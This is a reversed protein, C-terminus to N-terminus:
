SNYSLWIGGIALGVGAARYILADAPGVTVQKRLIHSMIGSEARRLMGGLIVMACGVIVSVVAFAVVMFSGRMLTGVMGYGLGISVLVMATYIIDMATLSAYAAPRHEPLRETIRALLAHHHQPDLPRAAVSMLEHLGSLAQHQAALEPQDLIAREIASAEGAKLEGDLLRQPYLPDTTM